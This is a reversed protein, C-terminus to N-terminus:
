AAVGLRMVVGDLGASDALTQSDLGGKNARAMLIRDLLRDDNRLDAGDLGEVWVLYYVHTKADQFMDTERTSLIALATDKTTRLLGHSGRRGPTVMGLAIWHRFKAPFQKPKTGLTITSRSPDRAIIRVAIPNRMLHGFDCLHRSIINSDIVVDRDPHPSDWLGQIKVARKMRRRAEGDEAEEATPARYM